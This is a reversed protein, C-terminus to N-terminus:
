GLRRKFAKCGRSPQFSPASSPQSTKFAKGRQSPQFSPASSPQSSPSPASECPLFDMNTLCVYNEKLKACSPDDTETQCNKAECYAICLGYVEGGEKYEHCVNEKAPTKGNPTKIEIKPEPTRARFLNKTALVGGGGSMVTPGLGLALTVLVVKKSFLM